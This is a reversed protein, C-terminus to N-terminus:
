GNFAALVLGFWSVFLILVFPAALFAIAMFILADKDNKHM